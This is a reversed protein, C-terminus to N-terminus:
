IKKNKCLLKNNEVTFLIAHEAISLSLPESGWRGGPLGEGGGGGQRRGVDVRGLGPQLFPSFSAPRLFPNRLGRHSQTPESCARPLSPTAGEM